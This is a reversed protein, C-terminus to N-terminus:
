ETTRVEQACHKQQEASPVTSSLVTVAEARPPLIVDLGSSVTSAEPSQKSTGLPFLKKVVGIADKLEGRSCHQSQNM